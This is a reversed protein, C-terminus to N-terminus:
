RERAAKTSKETQFALSKDTTMGIKHGCSSHKVRGVGKTGVDLYNLLYTVRPFTLYGWRYFDLVFHYKMDIYRTKRRSANNEIIAQAGKNDTHIKVPLDPAYGLKTLINSLGRAEAAADSAACYEAETTSRSVEGIKGSKWSVATGGMTFVFTAQARTDDLDDGWSSDCM